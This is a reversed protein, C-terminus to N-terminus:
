IINRRVLLGSGDMFGVTQWEIADLEKTPFRHVSYWFVFIMPKGNNSFTSTTVSKSHLDKIDVAPIVKLNSKKAIDSQANTSMFSICIFLWLLIHKM